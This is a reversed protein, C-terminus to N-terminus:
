ETLAEATVPDVGAAAQEECWAQAAALTAFPQPPNRLLRTPGTVIFRGDRPEVKFGEWARRGNAALGWRNTVPYFVWGPEYQRLPM